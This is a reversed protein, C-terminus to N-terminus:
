RQGKRPRPIDYADLKNILWRRSVGLLRAAVVQNGHAQSLAEVVRSREERAAEQRLLEARSLGDKTSEVSAEASEMSGDWPDPAQLLRSGPTNAIAPYADSVGVDAIRELQLDSARIVRGRAVVMARQVVNELERVNGPWCHAKMASLAGADFEPKPLRTAGAYREGFHEVLAPIDGPRCRLPPIHLTAGSLRYYLDRRLRGAILLAHLDSRTASIVRVNVSKPKVSGVSLVEGTEIVRLLKAQAQQSLDAIEDLFITGGDAAAFFGPKSRDAGPLAGKALGFLASELLSEPLADSSFTLFPGDRRPSMSHIASALLEKGVGTEGLVLVSVSSAAITAANECLLAMQEDRAVLVPAGRPRVSRLGDAALTADMERRSIRVHAPASGEVLFLTAPGIQVGSGPNIVVSDAPRLRNGNCYVGNRSGADEIVVRDTVHILAHLRSVADHAIVIDNDNLRGVRLTSGPVLRVSRVTDASFVVLRRSVDEGPALTHLEELPSPELTERVDM